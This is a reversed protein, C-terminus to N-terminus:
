SEVEHWSTASSSGLLLLISRVFGLNPNMSATADRSAGQSLLPKSAHGNGRHCPPAQQAALGGFGFSSVEEFKCLFEMLPRPLPTDLQEFDDYTVHPIKAGNETGQDSMDHFCPAHRSGSHGRAQLPQFPLTRTAMCFAPSVSSPGQFHFWSLAPTM